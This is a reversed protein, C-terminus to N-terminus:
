ITPKGADSLLQNLANKITTNEIELELNKDKLSDIENKQEQVISDLEKTAAINYVFIDQYALYYRNTVNNNNEDIYDGGTVCYSLDEIKLIDQAILGSEIKYNDSIDGNYDVTYMEKTKQYKKPNLERIIKLGNNIDVENHKVRDDSTVVTGSASDIRVEGADAKLIIHGRNQTHTNPNVHTTSLTLNFSCHVKSVTNEGGGSTTNVLELGYYGPGTIKQIGTLQLGIQDTRYSNITRSIGINQGLGPFQLTSPLTFQTPTLTGDVTVNNFRVDDSTGVSQGISFTTGSLTVGTGASYTTNTDTLGTLQSGDGSFTTATITNASINLINNGFNYSATAATSAIYNSDTQHIDTSYSITILKGNGYALSRNSGNLYGTPSSTEINNSYWDIGNTSYLIDYGGSSASIIFYESTPDWIISSYSPSNTYNTDNIRRTQKFVLNSISTGGVFDSYYIADSGVLVTRNLTSSFACSEMQKNLTGNTNLNGLYDYINTVLTWDATLDSSSNYYIQKGGGTQQTTLIFKELNSDWIIPM